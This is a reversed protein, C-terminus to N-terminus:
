IRLCQEDRKWASVLGQSEMIQSTRQRRSEKIRWISRRMDNVSITSGFEDLRCFGNEDLFGDVRLPYARGEPATACCMRLLPTLRTSLVNFYLTGKPSVPIWSISRGFSNLNLM